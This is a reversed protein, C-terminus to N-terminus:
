SKESSVKKGHMDLAIAYSEKPLAGIIARGEKAIVRGRDTADVFRVEPLETIEIRAFPRLRKLYEDQAQRWYGEKLKGITIITIKYM